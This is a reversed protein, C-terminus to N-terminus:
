RAGGHSPVPTLLFTHFANGMLGTGVIEGSDNISRGRLLVWGAGSEDLHDNLDRMAGDLYVFARFDTYSDNNTFWGTIEGAKNISDAVSWWNNLTDIDRMAGQSFLFAHATPPCGLCPPPLASSGVVDGRDNLDKGESSFGGLTGLDKMTGNRYAFARRGANPFDAWGTVHGKDNIAAGYSFGGGVPVIDRTVGDSHIFAHYAGNGTDDTAGTVDGHDNVDQASGATGLDSCTNTREAYAVARSPGSGAVLRHNNIAYAAQICGTPLVVRKGDRYVFPASVAYLPSVLVDGKANISAFADGVGLDTVRYLLRKQKAAVVGSRASEITDASMMVSDVVASTSLSSSEGGGGCASMALLLSGAFAAGSVRFRSSSAFM